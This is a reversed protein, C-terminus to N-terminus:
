GTCFYSFNEHRSPFCFFYPAYNEEAMRNFTKEPILYIPFTINHTNNCILLERETNNSSFVCVIHSMNM